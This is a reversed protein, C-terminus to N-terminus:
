HPTHPPARGRRSLPPPLSQKSSFGTCGRAALRDAGANGLTDPTDSFSHAKIGGMSVNDKLQILALESRIQYILEKNSRGKVPNDAVLRVCSESDALINLKLRVMIDSSRYSLM